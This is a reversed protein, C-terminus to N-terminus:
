NILCGDKLTLKRSMMAAVDDAHTVLVLSSKSKEVQQLILQMVDSSNKQDLAGTPEDALILKPELIMARLVAVRQCEGGSLQAPRHNIRNTLGVEDIMSKARDITKANQYKNKDALTPLLVNEIITAQPLLHHDQFVFGISERRLLSLEDDNLSAVNKSDVFVKGKSSNDLCGMINLITSKGSGSPGRIVVTENIDISLSIDDLVKTEVESKLYSKSVNNFVVLHDTM